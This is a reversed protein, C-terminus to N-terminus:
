IHGSEAMSNDYKAPSEFVLVSQSELPNETVREMVDLTETNWITACVVEASYKVLAGVLFFAFVVLYVKDPHIKYNM